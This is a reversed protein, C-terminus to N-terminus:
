QIDRDDITSSNPWPRRTVIRTTRGAPIPFDDGNLGLSAPRVPKPARIRRCLLCVHQACLLRLGIWDTASNRVASELLGILNISTADVYLWLACRCVIAERLLAAAALNGATDVLNSHSGLYFSLCPLRAVFLTNGARVLLLVAVSGVLGAISILIFPRRAGWWPELDDRNFPMVWDPPYPRKMFALCRVFEEGERKLTFGLDAMENIGATGELDIEMRVLPSETLLLPSDAPWDLKGGRIEGRNPLRSIAEELRSDLRNALVVL